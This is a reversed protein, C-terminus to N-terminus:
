YVFVRGLEGVNLIMAQALLHFPRFSVMGNDYFYGSGLLRVGSQGIKM